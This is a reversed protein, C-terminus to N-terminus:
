KTEAPSNSSSEIKTDKSDVDVEQLIQAIADPCSLVRKGDSWTPNPCEIGRLQDVIEYLPISYKLGLSILRTVAEANAAACGGSKGLAALTEILTGEKYGLTLYLNGCGTDIRHTPGETIKGRSIKEM